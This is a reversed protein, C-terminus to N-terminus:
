ISKGYSKSIKKFRNILSINIRYFRIINKSGIYYRIWAPNKKSNWLKLSKKYLSDAINYGSRTRAIKDGLWVYGYALKMENSSFKSNEINLLKYVNLSEYVDIYMQMAEENMATNKTLSNQKDHHREQVLYQNVKVIDIRSLIRIWMEVDQVYLFKPNFLGVQNFCDKHILMTCGNIYGSGILTKIAEIRPYYPVDIYCKVAGKDDIVMYDSYCIKFECNSLLYDIQVFIKNPLYKDDHSLWSFYEGKMERIGLNLATSIGGNEKEFYRIKNGYSLSIKRTMGDDDSGDNVVIVEINEYTQNLASDIAEYLFNSGNFVPIIISVKPYQQEESLNM